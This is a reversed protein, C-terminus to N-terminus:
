GTMEGWGANSGERIPYSFPKKEKKREWCISDTIASNPLVTKHFSSQGRCAAHCRSCALATKTSWIYTPTYLFSLISRRPCSVSWSMLQLM